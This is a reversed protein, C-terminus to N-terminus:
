VLKPFEGPDSLDPIVQVQPLPELYDDVQLAVLAKIDPLKSPTALPDGSTWGSWVGTLPNYWNHTRAEGAIINPSVYATIHVSDAGRKSPLWTIHLGTYPANLGGYTSHNLGTVQGENVKTTDLNGLRLQIVGVKRQVTVLGMINPRLLAPDIPGEKLQIAKAGMIDAEQELSIDDNVKVGGKMQLTPKVRGQKQQVVHWAEHPLHKEQGPALHIDTGQAYAHAQLQAPQASNYHVKVDDMSIGSLNEVGTKLNDPLGTKNEKKQIPQPIENSLKEKRQTIASTYNDAMDQQASLQLLRPSNNIAEQMKRQATAEPRNDVFQFAAGIKHQQSVPSTVASSKSDKSKDAYQSM